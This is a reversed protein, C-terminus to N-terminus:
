AARAALPGPPRPVSAFPSLLLWGPFQRVLDPMGTVRVKASKLADAFSLDGLWVRAMTGIDAEVYLEVEHGPDTLCVDPEPRELILWFEKPGRYTGPFGDYAFYAVVRREPLRDKAIRRRVNWMLLGADLNEPQFRVAWRQGWAGLAEIVPKFEKGADTLHYEGPRGRTARTSAVIGAAELERLRRALLARSILPICRHIENFRHSGAFLERLIIPTWREAFIECANAVPCFQGFGEKM